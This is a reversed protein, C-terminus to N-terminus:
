YEEVKHARAEAEEDRGEEELKQYMMDCGFCLLKYDSTRSYRSGVDKVVPSGCHECKATKIANSKKVPVDFARGMAYITEYKM